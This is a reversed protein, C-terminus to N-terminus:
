GIAVVVVNSPYECVRTFVLVKCGGRTEVKSSLYGQWGLAHLKPGFGPISDFLERARERGEEETFPGEFTSVVRWVQAYALTV